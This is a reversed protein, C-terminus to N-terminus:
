IYAVMGAEYCQAVDKPLVNATMGIVPISGATIRNLERTAALGNMGPMQLDMLVVDFREARISAIAEVGSSATIAKHGARTLVKATLRRNPEVDDVILVNLPRRNGYAPGALTVPTAVVKPAFRFPIEFWF